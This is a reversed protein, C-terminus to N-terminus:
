DEVPSRAIFSHSTTAVPYEMTTML